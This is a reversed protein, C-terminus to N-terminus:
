SGRASPAGCRRASKLNGASPAHGSGFPMTSSSCARPMLTCRQCIGSMFVAGADRGPLRCASASPRRSAVAHQDALRVGSPRRRGYRLRPQHNGSDSM